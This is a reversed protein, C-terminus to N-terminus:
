SKNLNPGVVLGPNIVSLEFKEENPLEKIFDWAAKEALTKSKEYAGAISVDTWDKESFETQGEVGTIFIAVVSSTIVVRKVKNLKAAKM